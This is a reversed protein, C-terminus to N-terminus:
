GTSKPQHVLAGSRMCGAAEYGEESRPSNGKRDFSSRQEEAVSSSRQPPRSVFALGSFAGMGSLYGSPNTVNAKRGLQTWM